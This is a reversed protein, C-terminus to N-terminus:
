AVSTLVLYWLSEVIATSTQYTAGFIQNAEYFLEAFGITSSL